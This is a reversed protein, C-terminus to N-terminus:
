TDTTLWAVITHHNYMRAMDLLATRDFRCQNSHAWKLVALDGRGVAIDSLWISWSAKKTVRLWNLVSRLRSAQEPTASLLAVITEYAAILANKPYDTQDLWWLLAPHGYRAANVFITESWVRSNLSLLRELTPQAGTMALYEATHAGFIRVVRKQEEATTTAFYAIFDSWFFGSTMRLNAASELWGYLLFRADSPISYFSNEVGEGAIRHRRMWCSDRAQNKNVLNARALWLFHGNFLIGRESVLRQQQQAFVVPRRQQAVAPAQECQSQEVSAQTTVRIAGSQQWRHVRQCHEPYALFLRVRSRVTERAQTYTVVGVIIRQARIEDREHCAVLRQIPAAFRRAQYGRQVHQETQLVVCQQQWQELVRCQREDGTRAKTAGAGPLEPQMSAHGTGAAVVGRLQNQAAVTPTNIITRRLTSVGVALGVSCLTYEIQLM